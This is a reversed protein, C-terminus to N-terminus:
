PQCGHRKIITGDPAVERVRHNGEDAIYFQGSPGFAVAQPSNLQASTAPGNDGSFSAARCIGAATSITGDVTVKRICHNNRDSIYLNWAFDVAVAFPWNLSANTAAGGDGSYGATGNGAVTTITVDRAVQRIVNNASDAIYLDTGHVAEGAPSNLQAAAAPGGDGTHWWLM